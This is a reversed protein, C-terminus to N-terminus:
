SEQPIEHGHLVYANHKTSMCIMPPLMDNRRNELNLHSAKSM